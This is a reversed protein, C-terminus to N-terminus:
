LATDESANFNGSTIVRPATRTESKLTTLSLENVKKRNLKWLLKRFTAKTEDRLNESFLIFLWPHIAANAHALWVFLLTGVEPFAEYDEPYFESMIHGVHVPFWCVAFVIVVTMLMKIVARRNKARRAHVRQNFNENGPPKYRWLFSAILSYLVAMILLPVAYTVVVRVIMDAKSVADPLVSDPECITAGDQTKTRFRFLLGIFILGACLWLSTISCAVSKSSLPKRWICVIALYREIAIVTLTWISTSITIVLFYPLLKCLLSGLLGSIWCGDCMFYPLHFASATLIIVLDAVSTNVLLWNFPNKRFRVRTRVIHIVVSNGVVSLLLIVVYAATLTIRAAGNLEDNMDGVKTSNRSDNM